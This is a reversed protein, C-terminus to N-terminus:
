ESESWLFGDGGGRTKRARRLQRGFLDAGDQSSATQGTKSRLFDRIDSGTMM